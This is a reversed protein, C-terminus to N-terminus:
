PVNTLWGQRRVVPDAGLLQQLQEGVVAVHVVDGPGAGVPPEQGARRRAEDSPVDLVVFDDFVFVVLLDCM